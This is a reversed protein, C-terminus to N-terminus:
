VFGGFTLFLIYLMTSSLIPFSFNDDWKGFPIIESLAGILGCILGVLLARELMLTNFLLYVYAVVSCVLFAATAGQLSKNGWIKDKGFRVGFIAAAPDGFALMLLSLEVVPKPFLAASIFIGLIAYTVGSVQQAESDRLIWRFRKLIFQNLRPNKLRLIDPIAVTVIGITLLSLAVQYSVYHFIVAM